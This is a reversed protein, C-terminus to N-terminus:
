MLMYLIKGILNSRNVDEDAGELNLSGNKEARTFLDQGVQGCNIYVMTGITDLILKFKIDVKSLKRIM